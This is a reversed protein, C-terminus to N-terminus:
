SVFGNYIKEEEKKLFGNLCSLPTVNKIHLCIAFQMDDKTPGLNYLVRGWALCGTSQFALKTNYVLLM